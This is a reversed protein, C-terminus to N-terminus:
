AVPEAQKMLQMAQGSRQEWKSVADDCRQCLDDHSLGLQGVQTDYFWCRECKKGQAKTVGIKCGSLSGVAVYKEDCFKSIDEESKVLHVQSLMMITRLDDVGNNKVPPYKISEDSELKNLIAAIREDSTHIYAAADLSAGILKDNRALELQKNVDERLNRVQRWEEDEFEPFSMLQVPWGGEFVSDTPKDYPTNQFHLFLFPSFPFLYHYFCIIIIIHTGTVEVLVCRGFIKLWTHCYQVLVRNFPLKTSSLIYSPVYKQKLTLFFLM